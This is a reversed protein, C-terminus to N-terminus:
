PYYCYVQAVAYPTGAMLGGSGSRMRATWSVANDAYFAYGGDASSFTKPVLQLVPIGSMGGAPTCAPKVIVAGETVESASVFSLNSTLDNLRMWRAVGGGPAPNARCILSSNNNSTDLGLIGETPCATGPTAGRLITDMGAFAGNLCILQVGTSGTAVSGEVACADGSAASTSMARWSGTQCVVLGTVAGSRRAISGEDAAACGAGAAYQGLPTLRDAAARGSTRLEAQGSGNNATALVYNTNAGTFGSPNDSALMNQNAVLDPTRVGGTYGAPLDSPNACGFGARGTAALIKACAAVSTDGGASLTGTVAANNNITTAGNLTTAGAVTLPGALNPDRTDGITVFRDFLATDVVGSGCVIGPVNGLPNPRNLVPGRIVAGANMLSQGGSGGQVDVMTQALDYRV